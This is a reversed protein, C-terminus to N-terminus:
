PNLGQQVSSISEQPLRGDLLDLRSRARQMRTSSCAPSKARPRSGAGPRREARKRHPTGVTAMAASRPVFRLLAAEFVILRILTRSTIAFPSLLADPLDQWLSPTTSVNFVSYIM